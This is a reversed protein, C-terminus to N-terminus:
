RVIVLHKAERLWTPFENLLRAYLEANTISDLDDVQFFNANDLTRGGMTDLQELIGYKRGGLGVFQWFIPYASAETRM